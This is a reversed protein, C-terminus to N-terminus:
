NLYPTSLIGKCDVRPAADAFANPNVAPPIAISKSKKTIAPPPQPSVPDLPPPPAPPYLVEKGPPVFIVNFPPTVGTVTPVPDGAGPGEPFPPSEEKEVMVEEPPPPACDETPIGPPEPLPAFPPLGEDTPIPFTPPKV